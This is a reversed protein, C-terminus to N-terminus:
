PRLGRRCGCALRLTGGSLAAEAPNCYANIDGRSYDNAIGLVAEQRGDRIALTSGYDGREVTVRCGLDNVYVGARRSQPAPVAAPVSVGAEGNVAGRLAELANGSAQAGQCLAAAMGAAMLMNKIM